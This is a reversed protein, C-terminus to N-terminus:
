GGLGRNRLEARLDAIADPERFQKLHAIEDDNARKFKERLRLEIQRELALLERPTM